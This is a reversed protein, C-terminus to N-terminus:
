DKLRGNGVYKYKVKEGDRRVIFTKDTSTDYVHSGIPHTKIYQNTKYKDWNAAKSDLVIENGLNSFKNLSPEMKKAVEQEILYTPEMGQQKYRQAIETKYKTYKNHLKLTEKNIKLINELGERTNTMKGTAQQVQEFIAKSRIATAGGEKALGVFFELPERALVKRLAQTVSNDTVNEVGLKERAWSEFGVGAKGTNLFSMATDYNAIRERNTRSAQVENALEKDYDDWKTDFRKQQYASTKAQQQQMFKRDSQYRKQEANTVSIADKENGHMLLNKAFEKNYNFEPVEQRIADQQQQKGVQQQQKAAELQKKLAMEQEFISPQGQQGQPLAGQMGMVQQLMEQNNQPGFAGAGVGSQVMSEPDIKNILNNLVSSNDDIPQEADTGAFRAAKQQIQQQKMMQPILIKSLEDPMYSMAEAQKPDMFASLGYQKQLQGLKSDILSQLGSSVGKGIISGMEASPSLKDIITAM